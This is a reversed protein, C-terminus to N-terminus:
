RAYIPWRLIPQPAWLSAKFGTRGRWAVPAERLPPTTVCLPPFPVTGNLISWPKRFASYTFEARLGATSTFCQTQTIGDDARWVELTRRLVSARMNTGDSVSHHVERPEPGLYWPISFRVVVFIILDPPAAPPLPLPLDPPIHSSGPYTEAHLRGWHLALNSLTLHLATTKLPHM